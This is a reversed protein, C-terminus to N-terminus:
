AALSTRARKARLCLLSAALTIGGLFSLLIASPEPVASPAVNVQATPPTNTPDLDDGQVTIFSIGPQEVSVSIPLSGLSQGTFVFTGILLPSSLDSIGALSSVGLDYLTDGGNTSTVVSSADWAPGATVAAQSLVAAAGGTPYSLEIAGTLLENGPGVQPGTPTQSVFVNVDITNGVGVITYTTTDLSLVLAATAPRSCFWLCLLAAVLSVNRPRAIM